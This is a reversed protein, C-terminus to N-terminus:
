SYCECVYAYKTVKRTNMNFWLPMDVWLVWVGIMKKLKRTVLRSDEGTTTWWGFPVQYYTSWGWQSVPPMCECTAFTSVAWLLVFALLGTICLKFM